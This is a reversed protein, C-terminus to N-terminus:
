AGDPGFSMSPLGSGHRAAMSPARIITALQDSAVVQIKTKRFQIIDFPQLKIKMKLPVGNVKPRVLGGAYRLYWGDPRKDMVAATKGIGFGRVVITSNRSHGFVVPSKDLPCLVGRDPLSVLVFHSENIPPLPASTVPETRPPTVLGNQFEIPITENISHHPIEPVNTKLPNSFVLTHNGVAITDNHNLWYSTIRKGNVCTGNESNLDVLLYAQGHTDIRAHHFSVVLEEIVVESAEDRGILYSEGTRLPIVDISKNRYALTLLAM